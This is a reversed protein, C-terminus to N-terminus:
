NFFYVYRIMTREGQFTNSVLVDKVYEFTISDSKNLKKLVNFGIQYKESGENQVILGEKNYKKYNIAPGYFLSNSEIKSLTLDFGYYYGNQQDTDLDNFRYTYYAAADILFPISTTVVPKFFYLEEQIEYRNKSLQLATRDSKDYKASPILLNSVIVLDGFDNPIFYGAAISIDGLGYKTENTSERTIKTYPLSFNFVFEKGYYVPKFIYTNVNLGYDKVIEKKSNDTIIDAQYNIFYNAILFTGDPHKKGTGIMVGYLSIVTFFLIVLLKM